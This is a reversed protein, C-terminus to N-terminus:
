CQIDNILRACIVHWCVDWKCHKGETEYFHKFAGCRPFVFRCRAHFPFATHNITYVIFIYQSHKKGYHECVQFLMVLQHKFKAQREKLATFHYIVRESFDPMDRVPEMAVSSMALANLCDPDM